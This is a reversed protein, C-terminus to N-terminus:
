AMRRGTRFGANRPVVAICVEHVQLHIRLM